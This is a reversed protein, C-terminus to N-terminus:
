CWPPPARAPSPPRGDWSRAAPRSRGGRSRSFFIRRDHELGAAVNAMQVHRIWLAADKRLQPILVVVRREEGGKAADAIGAAHTDFGRAFVYRGFRGARDSQKPTPERLFLHANSAQCEPCSQEGDCERSEHCLRGARSSRCGRGWHKPQRGAERDLADGSRREDVPRHHRVEVVVSPQVDGIGGARVIANFLLEGISRMPDHAEFVRVAVAAEVRAHHKGIAHHKGFSRHPEVAREIDGRRRADPFESVRIAVADGIPALLPELSLRQGPAGVIQVSGIEPGVAPDVPGLPGERLLRMRPRTPRRKHRPCRVDKAAPRRVLRELDHQCAPHVIGDVHRESGLTFADQRRCEQFMRLRALSVRDHVRDVTTHVALRVVDEVTVLPGAIQHRDHTLESRRYGHAERTVRRARKAIAILVTEEGRHEVYPFHRAVDQHRVPRGERRSVLVEEDGVIAVNM